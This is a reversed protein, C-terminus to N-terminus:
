HFALLSIFRSDRQLDALDPWRNLDALLGAPASKLVRLTDDRQSLAEYTLVAYWLVGEANNPTLRLAQEIETRARARDGLWACFYALRSRTDGDRPNRSLEREALGRAHRAIGRFESLRNTRRYAVSLDAWLTLDGEPALRRAESFYPIAETERGEYLLDRGLLELTKVTEKLALARRLEREAEPFRGLNTLASALAYRPDAEDPALNVARRFSTEAEQDIGRELFFAGLEQHARYNQPDVEVARYYTTLAENIQNTERFARGLRRYNDGNAPELEIARRYDNEAQEYQGKFAELIGAVRHGAATDPYRLESERVSEAARGVWAEDRTSFYKFWQAEALGAYPLPSSPEKTAAKQFAALAADAGSDFRIAAVGAQYDERADPKLDLVGPLPTLHLGGTVVGALAAPILETESPAYQAQWESVDGKSRTDTIFAHVELQGGESELTIRFVHTASLESRAEEASRAHSGLIRSVPLVTLAMRANGKLRALQSSTGQYLSDAVAASSADAIPPLVALRVTQRPATARRYTVLGTAIALVVAGIALVIRRKVRSPALALSLEGADRFRRAPDPNLCRTLIRNWKGSLPPLRTITQAGFGAGLKAGAEPLSLTSEMEAAIQGPRRGAVLECLIVGMAYIDSAVTAVGGRLLEPAMYHPTGGAVASQLTGQSLAAGRALGFDTIVARQAGDTDTTLIVNSSKLDGHIVHNRHAEALGACLQHAIARAEASPLPGRRLRASLTEGQLFEMTIFDFTGHETSTTHIEFIKCVNRHSIESAHRVEPPLRQRYGAKACKIAIRRGLREDVAEYVIGMGGRAVEGVVRFRGELRQGTVFAPEPDPSHPILPEQLFGKMRGEWRVYRRVCELLSEDGACANAIFDERQAEPRAMAQEVLSMVLEDDQSKDGV